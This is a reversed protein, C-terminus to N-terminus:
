KRVAVLFYTGGKAVRCERTLPPLSGPCAGSVDRRFGRYGICRALLWPVLSPLRRDAVQRSRISRFKPGSRGQVAKSVLRRTTQGLSWHRKGQTAEFGADRNALNAQKPHHAPSPSTGLVTAAKGNLHVVASCPVQRQPVSRQLSHSLSHTRARIDHIASRQGRDPMPLQSNARRTVAGRLGPVPICEERGDPGVDLDDRVCQAGAEGASKRHPFAVCLSSGGSKM